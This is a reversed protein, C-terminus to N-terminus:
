RGLRLWDHFEAASDALRDALDRCALALQRRRREIVVRVAM